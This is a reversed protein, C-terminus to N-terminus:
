GLMNQKGIYCVGVVELLNGAGLVGILGTACDGPLGTLGPGCMGAAGPSELSVVSM